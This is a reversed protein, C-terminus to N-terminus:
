YGMGVWRCHVCNNFKCDPKFLMFRLCYILVPGITNSKGRLVHGTTSAFERKEGRDATILALKFADRHESVRSTAVPVGRGVLKVGEERENEVVGHMGHLFVTGVQPCRELVRCKTWFMPSTLDIMVFVFDPMSKKKKSKAFSKHM